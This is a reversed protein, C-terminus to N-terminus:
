ARLTFEAAAAVVPQNPRALQILDRAVADADHRAVSNESLYDGEIVRVHMATLRSVDCAVPAAGRAAYNAIVESSFSARNVLITDFLNM